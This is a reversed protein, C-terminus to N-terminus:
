EIRSVLPKRDSTLQLRVNQFLRRDSYRRRPRAPKRQCCNALGELFRSNQEALATGAERPGAGFGPPAEKCMADHGAEVDQVDNRARDRRGVSCPPEVGPKKQRIGISDGM